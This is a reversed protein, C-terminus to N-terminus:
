VQAFIQTQTKELMMKRPPMAKITSSKISNLKSSIKGVCSKELPPVATIQTSKEKPTKPIRKPIMPNMPAKFSLLGITPIYIQPIIKKIRIMQVSLM